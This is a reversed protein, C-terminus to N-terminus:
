MDAKKFDAAFKNAMAWSCLMGTMLGCWGEKVALDRLAPRLMLWDRFRSHLSHILNDWFVTDSWRTPVCWDPIAPLLILVALLWVWHRGRAIRSALPWAALIVCLWPLLGAFLGIEPGCLIQAPDELGAQAACNRAHRYLDTGNPVPYLEAATFGDEGPLLLVPLEHEFVGCITHTEEGIQLPLATVETGGYLAWALNTSVACANEMLDNPPAGCVWEAPFALRADGAFRIVTAGIGSVDGEEESWVAAFTSAQDIAFPASFRMSVSLAHDRIVAAQRFSFCLLLFLVAARCLRKM